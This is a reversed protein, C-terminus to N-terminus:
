PTLILDRFHLLIQRNRLEGSGGGGEFFGFKVGNRFLGYLGACHRHSTTDLVASEAAEFTEISNLFQESLAM